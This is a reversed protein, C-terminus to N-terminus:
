DWASIDDLEWRFNRSRVIWLRGAQLPWGQGLTHQTTKHGQLDFCVGCPILVTTKLTVRHPVSVLIINTHTNTKVFNSIHKLGYQANNKNVDNTGGLIVIIDSYTLHKIDEKVSSILTDINAGPKVFGSCRYNDKLNYKVNRASDRAHSDDVIV